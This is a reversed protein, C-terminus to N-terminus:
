RGCSEADGAASRPAARSRSRRATGASGPHAAAAPSRRPPGDETHCGRRAASRLRPQAGQTRSAPPLESVPPGRVQASQRARSAIAGSALSRWSPRALLVRQREGGVACPAKESRPDLWGAPAGAGVHLRCAPRRTSTPMRPTSAVTACTTAISARFLMGDAAVSRVAAHISAPSVSRAAPWRYSDHRRAPYAPWGASRLGDNQRCGIARDPRRAAPEIRFASTPLVPRHDDYAFSVGDFAVLRTGALPPLGAGSASREALLRQAGTCPLSTPSCRRTCGPSRTRHSRVPSRSRGPVPRRRGADVPTRPRPAALALVRAERHWHDTRVVAFRRCHTRRFYTDDRPLCAVWVRWKTIALGTRRCRRSAPSPRSSGARRRRGLTRLLSRRRCQARADEALDRVRYRRCRSEDLHALSRRLSVLIALIVVPQVRGALNGELRRRLDLSVQDAQDVQRAVSTSSRPSFYTLRLGTVHRFTRLDFGREVANAEKTARIEGRLRVSRFCGCWRSSCRASPCRRSRRQPTKSQLERREDDNGAFTQLPASFMRGLKGASAATSRHRGAHRSGRISRIRRSSSAPSTM